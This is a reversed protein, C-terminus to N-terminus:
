TRTEVITGTVRDTITINGHDDRTHVFNPGAKSEMDSVSRDYNARETATMRAWEIATPQSTSGSRSTM